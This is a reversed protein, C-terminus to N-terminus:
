SQSDSLENKNLVTATLDIQTSDAVDPIEYNVMLTDLRLRESYSPQYPQSFVQNRTTDGSIIIEEYLEIAEIEGQSFYELKFTVTEDPAYQDEYGSIQALVPYYGKGETANGELFTPNDYCAQMIFILALSLGTLKLTKKM